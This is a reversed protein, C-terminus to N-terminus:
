VVVDGDRAARRREGDTRRDAAEAVDQPVDEPVAEAGPADREVHRIREARALSLRRERLGLDLALLFVRRQRIQLHRDGGGDALGPPLHVGIQLADLRRALRALERLLPEVGLVLAERDTERRGELQDLRLAVERERLLALQVRRDVVVARQHIELGYLYSRNLLLSSLLCFVAPSRGVTFPWGCLPRPERDDTMQRRYDTGTVEAVSGATGFSVTVTMVRFSDAFM